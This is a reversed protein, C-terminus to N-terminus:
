VKYVVWLNSLTDNMPNFGSNVRAPKYPNVSVFARTLAILVSVLFGSQYARIVINSIIGAQKSLYEASSMLRTDSQVLSYWYSM